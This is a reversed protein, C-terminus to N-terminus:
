ARTAGILCVVLTCPETGRNHWRHRTGNQVVTDGAVLHVEAGDDLELDCTGSVVYEFDVTDTTHMGPDDPEQVEAMGPLREEFEALAAAVDIGDLDVTTAPGITFLGFRFGHPPPFYRPADPREGDTPLQVVADSGWLQHFAYGPLLTLTTPEVQEDSAFVSTGDSRHGTVVRRIQVTTSRLPGCSRERRLEVLRRHLYAREPETGVQALAVEYQAAAEEVRELRRLM